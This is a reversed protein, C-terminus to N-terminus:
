PMTSKLTRLYAAVQWIYEEKLVSNWAVMATGDLKAAERPPLPAKAVATTKGV